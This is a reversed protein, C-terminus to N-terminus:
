EERTEALYIGWEKLEEPLDYISKGEVEIKESQGPAGASFTDWATILNERQPIDHAEYFDDFEEINQSYITIINYKGVMIEDQTEHGGFGFTVMGDNILLEGYREILAICEEQSCGDIYYVDKHLADVIGPAIPNERDSKVPIELIFFLPEEHIAIFHYIVDRINEASVNAMLSNEDIEYGEEIVNAKAIKYGKAFNFAM